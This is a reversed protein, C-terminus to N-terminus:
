VVYQNSVSPLDKRQGEDLRGEMPAEASSVIETLM